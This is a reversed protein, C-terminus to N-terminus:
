AGDGDRRPNFSGSPRVAARTGTKLKPKPPFSTVQKWPEETRFVPKSTASEERRDMSTFMRTNLLIIGSDASSVEVEENGPGRNQSGPVGVTLRTRVPVATLVCFARTM